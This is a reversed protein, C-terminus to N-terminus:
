TVEAWELWSGKYVTMSTSSGSGYQAFKFVVTGGTSGVVIVGSIRFCLFWNPNGAFGGSTNYANAGSYADVGFVISTPATPGSFSFYSGSGGTFHVVSVVFSYTKNASVPFKLENDDVLVTSSTVSQNSTKWVRTWNNAPAGSTWTTGNSTLVNGSTGPAVFTPTSTGAGLIVNNATLTTLGTGGNAVILTGAITITGSTTLPGGSTTLGTTGGSVAVSTLTGGSGTASIQIGGATNSVSAGSGATINALTFNEANGILLEGNAPPRGLKITQNWITVKDNAM